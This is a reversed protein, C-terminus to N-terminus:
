SGTNSLNLYSNVTAIPLSLSTAIQSVQQGQNYLQYVRQAETLQVTDEGSNSTPSPQAVPQNSDPSNSPSAAGGSAASSVLSPIAAISM